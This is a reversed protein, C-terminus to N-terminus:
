AFTRVLELVAAADPGEAVLKTDAAEVRQGAVRLLDLATGRVRTSPPDDPVFDWPEGAPGTLHFAVPGPTARGAREFAYPITRWALRAIPRLRDSAQPAEGLAFTVDNTHIWTEALRTVTLTRISLKNFVWQVRTSPPRAALADYMAEASARWWDHVEPASRERDAAVAEEARDDVNGIPGGVKDAAADAAFFNTQALHVVVDKVSWGPCESDRAWDEPSLRDLVAATEDLQARLAALEETM